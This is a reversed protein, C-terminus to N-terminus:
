SSRPSSGGGSRLYGHFEFAQASLGTLAAAAAIPLLKLTKSNM